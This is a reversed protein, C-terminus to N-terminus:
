HPPFIGFSGRGRPIEDSHRLLVSGRGYAVQVFFTTFISRTAGSIHEVVCLCVSVCVCVHEDCYKAVARYFGFESCTRLQNTGFEM